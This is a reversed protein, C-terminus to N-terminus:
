HSPEDPAPCALRVRARARDCRFRAEACHPATSDLTCIREALDCVRESPHSASVCDAADLACALAGLGDRQDQSLATTEVLASSPQVTARATPREASRQPREAPADSVADPAAEPASELQMEREPDRGGNAEGGWSDDAACVFAEDASRTPTTEHLAQGGGTNAAGACGDLAALALCLLASSLGPARRASM